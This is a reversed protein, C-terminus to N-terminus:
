TQLKFTGEPEEVILAKKTLFNIFYKKQRIPYSVNLQEWISEFSAQKRQHIIELIKLYDKLYQTRILKQRANRLYAEFWKDKDTEDVSIPIEVKKAKQDTEPIIEVGIEDCYSKIGYISQNKLGPLIFREITTLSEGKALLAKKISEFYNEKISKEEKEIENTYSEFYEFFLMKNKMFKAIHMTPHRLHASNFKIDSDSWTNFFAYGPHYVFINETEGKTKLMSVMNVLFAQELDILFKQKYINEVKREDLPKYDSTNISDVFYPINPDNDAKKSSVIEEMIKIEETLLSTKIKKYHAILAARLNPITVSNQKKKNEKSQKIAESIIFGLERMTGGTSERLYKLILQQNRQFNDFIRQWESSAKEFIAILHLNLDSEYQVKIAPGKSGIRLGFYKNENFLDLRAFPQFYKRHIRFKDPSGSQLQEFDSEQYLVLKFILLNRLNPICESLFELFYNRVSDKFYGKALFFESVEDIYFIFGKIKWKRQLDTLFNHISDFNIPKEKQINEYLRKSYSELFVDYNKRTIFESEFQFDDSELDLDEFKIYDLDEEDLESLKKKKVHSIIKQFLLLSKVIQSKLGAYFYSINLLSDELDLKFLLNCDIFIPVFKRNRKFNYIQHFFSKTLYTSKGTGRRGWLLMNDFNNLNNLADKNFNVFKKDLEEYETIIRNISEEDTPDNVFLSGWGQLNTFYSEVDELIQSDLEGIKIVLLNM